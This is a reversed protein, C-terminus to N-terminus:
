NVVVVLGKLNMRLLLKWRRLKIQWRSPQSMLEVLLYDEMWILRIVRNWRWVLHDIESFGVSEGQMLRRRGMRSMWLSCDRLSQQQLFLGRDRRLGNGGIHSM